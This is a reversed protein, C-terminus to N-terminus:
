KKQIIDYYKTDASAVKEYHMLAEVYNQQELAIDGALMEDRSEKVIQLQVTGDTVYQQLLNNEIMSFEQVQESAEEYSIKELIYDSVIADVHDQVSQFLDDEEDLEPKENILEVAQSYAGEDLLQEIRGESHLYMWNFLVAIGALLLIIAILLAWITKWSSKKQTQKEQCCPCYVSFKPITKKCKSCKM